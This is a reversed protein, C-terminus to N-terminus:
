STKKKATGFLDTGALGLAVQDMAAQDNLTGTGNLGGSTLAALAASHVDAAGGAAAM